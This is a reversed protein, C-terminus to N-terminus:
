DYRTIRLYPAGISLFLNHRRRGDGAPPSSFKVFNASRARAGSCSVRFVRFVSCPRSFSVQFVRFVSSLSLLSVQFGFHTFGRGPGIISQNIPQNTPPQHNLQNTPQDTLQHGQSIGSRSGSTGPFDWVTVGIDRPFGLGHGRHGQSIGSRSGSTGPFDWVTVGIDRPFGRGHGRHGQSIGSRSGSTGPCDGVAVGIDRPFGRGHGQHGQSIGRATLITGITAVADADLGSNHLMLKETDRLVACGFPAARLKPRLANVREHQQKLVELAAGLPTRLGKCTSSFAVAVVPQLPDALGDVIVGLEDHSLTILDVARAREDLEPGPESPGPRGDAGCRRV